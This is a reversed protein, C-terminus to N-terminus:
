YCVKQLLQLKLSQHQLSSKPPGENFSLISTAGVDWQSSTKAHENEENYGISEEM